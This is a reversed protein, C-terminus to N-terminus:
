TGCKRALRRSQYERSTLLVVAPIIQFLLVSVAVAFLPGRAGLSPTLWWSSVLVSVCMSVACVAQFRLGKGSTFAMGSTLQTSQVLLLLALAVLIQRSLSLSGGSVLASVPSLFVIIGVGFVLGVLGFLGSFKFIGFTASIGEKREAAFRPWLAFGGAAFISWIPAYLQMALAYESLQQSTSRHALVIRGSQLAIAVSISVALMSLGMSLVAATSERTELRRVVDTFALKAVRLGSLSCFFSSLLLAFPQALGLFAVPVGTYAGALVVLLGGVSGITSFAIVFHNRNCGILIRQGLSLPISLGFIFVALSTAEDTYPMGINELGLLDSWSFVTSGLVGALSILFSSLLLLRFAAQLANVRAADGSKTQSFITMVRAGLGLDAFPLLLLFTGVLSIAGFFDAGATRIIISASLLGAAATIPLTALRVGSSLLIARM